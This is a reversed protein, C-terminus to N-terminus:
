PKWEEDYDPHSAYAAALLRLPRDQRYARFGTM